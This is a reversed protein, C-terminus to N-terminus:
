GSTKSNRGFDKSPKIKKKQQYNKSSNMLNEVIKLIIQCQIYPYKKDKIDKPSIDAAMSKHVYTTKEAQSNGFEDSELEFGRINISQNNIELM